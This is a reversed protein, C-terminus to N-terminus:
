PRGFKAATKDSGNAHVGHLGPQNTFCDFAYVSLVAVLVGMFVARALRM